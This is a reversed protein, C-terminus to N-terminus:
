NQVVRPAAITGMAKTVTSSIVLLKGAATNEDNSRIKPVTELQKLIDLEFYKFILNNPENSHTLFRYNVFYEINKDRFKSDTRRSILVIYVIKYYTVNILM